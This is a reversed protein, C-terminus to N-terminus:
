SICSLTHLRCTSRCEALIIHLHGPNKRKLNWPNSHHWHFKLYAVCLFEKISTFQICNIRNQYRQGHQRYRRHCAAIAITSPWCDVPRHDIYIHHGSVCQVLNTCNMTCKVIHFLVSQWGRGIADNVLNHNFKILVYFCCRDVNLRLDNSTYKTTYKATHPTHTPICWNQALSLVSTTHSNTNKTPEITIASSEYSAERSVWRKNSQKNSISLNKKKM